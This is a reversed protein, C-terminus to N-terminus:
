SSAALWAKGADYVPLVVGAVPAARILTFSIGRYFGRLGGNAYTERVAVRVMETLPPLPPPPPPLPPRSALAATSAGSGSGSLVVVDPKQSMIRSRLVDLPYISLWGCCGAAMGCLVRLLLPESSSPGSGGGVGVSSSGGEIITGSRSRRISSSTTGSTPIGLLPSARLAEKAAAYAVLYCASGITELACHVGLGRFLGRVGHSSQLLLRIRDPLSGGTVQQILKLRQMPATVPATILGTVGGAVFVTSLSTDTRGLWRGVVPRTSEYVGFYFARMTGTTLLPPLIGRYLELFQRPTQVVATKGVQAQVKATDFAHGIIVGSAGAVLGAAVGHWAPPPQPQQDREM